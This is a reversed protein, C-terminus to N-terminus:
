SIKNEVRAKISNSAIDKLLTYTIVIKMIIDKFKHFLSGQLIKTFYNALMLHASFYIIIIEGKKLRDKIFFYRIKINQSKVTCYKRRNIKM